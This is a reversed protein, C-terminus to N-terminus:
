HVPKAIQRIVWDTTASAVESTTKVERERISTGGGGFWWADRGEVMKIATEIGAEKLVAHLGSLNSGLDTDGVNVVLVKSRSGDLERALSRRLISEYYRGSIPYGLVDVTGGAKLEAVPDLISPGDAADQKLRGIAHGRLVERFYATTDLVPSILVIREAREQRGATAAVLAGIRTGIMTGTSIGAIERLRECARTADEVLGEYTGRSPSGDSNGSGRYHFRQVALGAAVLERAIVVDRRYSVHLEALVPGCIVAGGLVRGPPISTSGFLRHRPPGFFGLVERIGTGPDVRVATSDAHSSTTGM